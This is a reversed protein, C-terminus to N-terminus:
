SRIGRRQVPLYEVVELLSDILPVGAERLHSRHHSGSDYLVCRAGVAAAAEADDLADGVVLM